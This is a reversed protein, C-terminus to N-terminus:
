AYIGRPMQDAIVTRRRNSHRRRGNALHHKVVGYIIIINSM